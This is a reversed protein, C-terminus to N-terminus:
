TWDGGVSDIGVVVSPEVVITDVWFEDKAGVFADVAVTDCIVVTLRCGLPEGTFLDGGSPGVCVEDLM